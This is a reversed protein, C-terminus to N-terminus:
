LIPIGFWAGVIKAGGVLPGLLPALKQISDWLSTGQQVTSNAEKFVDGVKKVNAVIGDAQVQDGKAAELALGVSTQTSIKKDVPLGAQDLAAHLQTLAERLQNADIRTDRSINQGVVYSQANRGIAVGQANTINGISISEGPDAHELTV